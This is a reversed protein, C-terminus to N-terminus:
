PSGHWTTDESFATAVALRMQVHVDEDVGSNSPLSRFAPVWMLETPAKVGEVRSSSVSTTRLARTIISASDAAPRSAPSISIGNDSPAISVPWTLPVRASTTEPVTEPRSDGAPTVNNLDHPRAISSKTVARSAYALALTPPM